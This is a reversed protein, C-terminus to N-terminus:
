FVNLLMQLINRANDTYHSMLLVISDVLGDREYHSSKFHRIYSNDSVLRFIDLPIDGTLCRDVLTCCHSRGSQIVFSYFQSARSSFLLCSRLLNLSQYVISESITPIKLAHLLPTNRSHKRLGLFAKVLKGQMVDMKKIAAKKIMMTECGYTMISRVGVSYLKAAVTPEVGRFHLGASQLGYFAKQASQMRKNCHSVGKDAHLVAGLYEIGASEHALTTGEITWSPTQKLTCIGFTAVRTKAPNFRLGLPTIYQVATNILSQLGSATSSALLVDDAYCFVNYHCNQITIGCNLADLTKILGRYFVNFLFPSSLGGQRTGRKVQIPTSIRGGWSIVVSMSRYWTYLLRWCHDPLADMAEHFLVAHPIADFAGEADLSCLFVPSGRSSCYSCVDHALSIATSTGRHEVFGFQCPHMSFDACEELIYIELLKSIVVSVIIPRYSSPASPDLQPKKLVPVLRGTCFSQPFCCFRLCVTLLLCLHLPLLTEIAYCIHEPILGDMGGSCGKKLRRILRKVRQESVTIHDLTVRNLEQLKEVVSEEMQRITNNLNVDTPNFKADYFDRLADISIADSATNHVRAKRVLNWFKGPRDTHFLRTLLEHSQRCKSNVAQRCIRRFARRAERYCEYVSGTGPRNCSKWIHFFLRMRDRAVTCDHSWWHRRRGGGSHERRHTSDWVTQTAHHMAKVLSDSLSNVVAQASDRTVSGINMLPVAHLANEVAERYASKVNPQEWDLRPLRPPATGSSSADASSATLPIRLSTQIAFHDSTNDPCDSLIRCNIMYDQLYCPVLVHDIYSKHKANQWTYNVSIYLFIQLMFIM